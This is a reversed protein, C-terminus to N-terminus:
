KRPRESSCLQITINSQEFVPKMRAFWDFKCKESHECAACPEGFDALKGNAAQKHFAKIHYAICDITEKEM